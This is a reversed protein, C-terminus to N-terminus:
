KKTVNRIHRNSFLFLILSKGRPSSGRKREGAEFQVLFESGVGKGRFRM